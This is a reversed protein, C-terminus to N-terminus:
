ISRNCCSIIKLYRGHHSISLPFRLNNEKNLLYPVGFEDKFIEESNLILGKSKLEELYNKSYNKLSIYKINEFDEHFRYAISHIYNKYVFSSSFYLNNQYMIETEIRNAKQKLKDIKFKLPAYEYVPNERFNAKYVAEKISWLLWLMSSQQTANLILFQEEDTFTKQLYGARKWNSENEAAKLDVVDNGIM